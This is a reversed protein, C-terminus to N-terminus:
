ALLIVPRYLFSFWYNRSKLIVTSKYRQRFRSTDTAYMEYMNSLVHILMVLELIVCIFYCKVNFVLMSIISM